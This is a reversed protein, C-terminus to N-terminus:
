FNFLKKMIRKSLRIMKILNKLDSIKKKFLGRYGKWLFDILIKKIEKCTKNFIM